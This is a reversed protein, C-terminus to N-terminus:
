MICKRKFLNNFDYIRYWSLFNNILIKVKKKMSYRMFTTLIKNLLFKSKYVYNNIKSMIRDNRSRDKHM